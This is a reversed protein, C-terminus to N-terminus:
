NLSPPRLYVPINFGREVTDDLRDMTEIDAFARRHHIKLRHINYRREREKEERYIEREQQAMTTSATVATGRLRWSM